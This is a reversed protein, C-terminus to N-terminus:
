PQVSKYITIAVDPCVTTCLRCGTCEGPSASYVPYVGKKNMRDDILILKKPCVAVCLGCGKCRAQNIVIEPM